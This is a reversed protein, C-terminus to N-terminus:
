QPDPTDLEPPCPVEIPPPPNCFDGKPCDPAEQDAFCRGDSQRFIEYDPDLPRVLDEPCDATLSREEGRTVECGYPYHAEIRDADGLQPPCETPLAALSPCSWTDPCDFVGELRCTGDDQRSIGDPNALPPCDIPTPMPPNCTQGEEPPPCDIVPELTCTGDAKQLLTDTLPIAPPNGFDSESGLLGGCAISLGTAATITIIRSRPM